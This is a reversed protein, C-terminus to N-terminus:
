SAPALMEKWGDDGTTTSNQVTYTTGDPGVIEGSAANYTSSTNTAPAPAPTYTCPNPQQGNCQVTGQGPKSPADSAPATPPPLLDAPLPNLGNNISPARIVTGPNVPQDCAAGPAPCTLIQEPDGYWPNTGLPVYPEDSRCELPTAARKGPVDVCPINRAGRVTNSPVDQPVKCYLGDEVPKMSTDAPSRWQPAPLFGTLCPPPQNISLGLDLKAEGPFPAAVAQGAAPAQPLLVMAQEVGKNYRALMETIISINALTQPLADQVDVFLTNLQEATPAAEQLGSRLAADQEKAQATLSNLNAAWAYIADASQVQSGLIPPANDVISNIDGINNSLETVFSQTNDVLKQLTPGLGGVAQATEDLLNPIKGAPVAALAANARDLAPGIPVPITSNTITDGPKFYENPTGASVLDVYQEGVATVSRVNASSDVPIKFKDSVSLTALAGTETPEINTVKGITTGRYTVNATKYLGGAAPLEVKLPYQGIGAVSPLRLYFISLALLALVTLLGFILLQSKIFRTLVM